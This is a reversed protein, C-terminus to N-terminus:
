AGSEESHHHPDQLPTLDHQAVLPPSQGHTAGPRWQGQISLSLVPEDARKIRQVLRDVLMRGFMVPDFEIRSWDVGEPLPTGTQTFLIVGLDQGPTRGVTQLARFFAPLLHDDAVFVADPQPKGREGRLMQEVRTRADTATDDLMLTRRYALHRLAVTDRYASERLLQLEASGSDRYIMAVRRYGQEALLSVGQRVSTLTDWGIMPPDYCSTVGLHFFLHPLNMGAVATLFKRSWGSLALCGDCHLPALERRLDHTTASTEAHPTDLLTLQHNLEAARQCIAHYITRNPEGQRPLDCWLGLHLVRNAVERQVAMGDATAAPPAFLSEADVAELPGLTTPGTSDTAQDRETVVRRIFTGSGRRRSLLGEDVLQTIADRVLMRAADLREALDRESRLRRGVRAGPQTLTWRIVRCVDQLNQRM